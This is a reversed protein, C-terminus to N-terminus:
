GEERFEVRIRSRGSEDVWPVVGTLVADEPASEIAQAIDGAIVMATFADMAMLNQVDEPGGLAISPSYVLNRSPDVSGFKEVAAIDIDDYPEVAIRLLEEELFETFTDAIVEPELFNAELLYIEPLYGDSPDAHKLAYLDGFFTEGIVLYPGVRRDWAFRWRSEQNWARIDMYADPRIGFLRNAGGHVSFGNLRQLTERYDSPLVALAPDSLANSEVPQGVYAVGAELLRDLVKDLM